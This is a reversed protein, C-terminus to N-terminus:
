DSIAYKSFHDIDFEVIGSPGVNAFSQMSWSKRVPDYYYLYGTGATSSLEAMEFRLKSPEGFDLGDPGFEFVIMEKGLVEENVTRVTILTNEELAGPMVEFEHTFEERDIEIIGGTTKNIFKYDFEELPSPESGSDESAGPLIKDLNLPGPNVTPSPSNDPDPYLSQVPSKNSCGIVLFLTLVVALGGFLSLSKLAKM